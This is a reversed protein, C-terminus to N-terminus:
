VLIIVWTVAATVLSLLVAASGLDKTRKSLPNIETGIRDVVAEIASNVLEVILVIALSGILLARETSVDTLLFAAVGGVIALAVEQQFARESKVAHALGSLSNRFARLLPLPSLLNFLKNM